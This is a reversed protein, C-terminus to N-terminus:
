SVTFPIAMGSFAHPTGDPGPLFCVMGYDGPTLEFTLVEEDEGGPAALDSEASGPEILGAEEPDGEFALAEDLTHGEAIKAIIMFHAEQGENTLVFSARGATLGEPIDFTYESAVIDVRTADDEIERTVGEPLETEEESHPIGCEDEEFANIEDLAAEVEDDAFAALSAVLDGENDIVAPAAIAVADQIEEPALEQYQEAQAATPFDEQNFMEEALACLEAFEGDGGGGDAATTTTAEDAAATTTTAADDDDGCAAVLLALAAGAAAIRIGRRNHRTMAPNDVRERGAPQTAEGATCGASM